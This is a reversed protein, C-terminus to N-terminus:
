MQVRLEVWDGLCCYFACRWQGIHNQYFFYNQFRSWSIRTIKYNVKFFDSVIWRGSITSCENSLWQECSSYTWLGSCNSYRDVYLRSWWPRLRFVHRSDYFRFKLYSVSNLMCEHYECIIPFKGVKNILLASLIQGVSFIIEVM